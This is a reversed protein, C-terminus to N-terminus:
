LFSDTTADECSEVDFLTQCRHSASYSLTLNGVHPVFHRCMDVLTFHRWYVTLERRFESLTEEFQAASPNQKYPLLLKFVRNSPRM